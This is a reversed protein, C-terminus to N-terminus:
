EAALAEPDPPHSMRLGQRVDDLSSAALQDQQSM